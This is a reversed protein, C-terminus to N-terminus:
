STAQSSSASQSSALYYSMIAATMVVSLYSNIGSSVIGSIIQVIRGPIVVGLLAFVVGVILGAGLAVLMLLLGLGIVKLLNEKVFAISKKMADFFSSDEAVLTYPSFSLLIVLYIALAGIALAIIATIAILAVNGSPAASAAILTAVIATVAIALGIVAAFGLLRLYFKKGYDVFKDLQAKGEKIIDKVSSLLGGQIFISLLVFVISLLALVPSMPPPVGDAPLTAPTFPITILNWVLNFVFVVLVVSTLSKTAIDFGNKIADIVKM